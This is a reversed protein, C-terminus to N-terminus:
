KDAPDVPDANSARDGKTDTEAENDQPQSAPDSDVTPPAFASDSTTDIAPHSALDAEYLSMAEDDVPAGEDAYEFEEDEASVAQRIAQRLVTLDVGPSIEIIAQKEGMHRITGYIGSGLMVRTGPQLANMMEQQKQQAKRQPRIMLFYMAVGMLVIIGIMYWDM